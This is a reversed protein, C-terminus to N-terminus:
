STGYVWQGCSEKTGQCSGSQASTREARGIDRDREARGARERAEVLDRRAEGRQQAGRRQRGRMSVTVILVVLVVAVAVAIVVVGTSVALVDFTTSMRGRRGGFPEELIGAVVTSGFRSM